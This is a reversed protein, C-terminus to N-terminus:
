AATLPSAGQNSCPHAASAGSGPATESRAARLPDRTGETEGRKENKKRAESLSSRARSSRVVM